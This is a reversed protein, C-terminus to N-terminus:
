HNLFGMFTQILFDVRICLNLMKEVKKVAKQMKTALESSMNPGEM